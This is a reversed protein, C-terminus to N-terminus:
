QAAPSAPRTHPCFGSNLAAINYTYTGDGTRNQPGLTAGPPALHAGMYAGSADYRCSILTPQPVNTSFQPAGWNDIENQALRTAQSRAADSPAALPSASVPVHAAAIGALMVTMARLKM